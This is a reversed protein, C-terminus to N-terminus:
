NRLRGTIALWFSALIFFSLAYVFLNVTQDGLISWVMQNTWVGSSNPLKLNLVMLTMAIAFIGDVLTEIRGVSIFYDDDNYESEDM